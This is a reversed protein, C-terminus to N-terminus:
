FIISNNCDRVIRDRLIDPASGFWIQTRQDVIGHRALDHSAINCLRPIKSVSLIRDSSLLIRLDEVLHGLSSRDREVSIAMNLLEVSDTEVLFNGQCMDLAFRTGELCAQLEADLASACFQLARCASFVISGDSRRLIMGAGAAGTQAVYAGDVNLKLVGNPPRSWRVPPQTSQINQEHIYQKGVVQKGKILEETPAQRINDLSQIYSCIFRRFGEVGPLPKDHTVENRAHWIRWAIMVARSCMGPSMLLLWSELWDTGTCPEIVKPIDWVERMAQWLAAAHPCQVLAHYTDERVHGCIRCAGTCPIHRIKKNYETALGNSLAKWIFIRIKEPM